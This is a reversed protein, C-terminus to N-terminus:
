LSWSERAVWAHKACQHVTGELIDTETLLEHGVAALGVSFTIVWEDSGNQQKARWTWFNHGDRGIGLAIMGIRGVMADGSDRQWFVINEGTVLEDDKWVEEYPAAVGTSPNVMTGRELSLTHIDPHLPHPCIILGEDVSPNLSRSDIIHTWKAQVGEPSDTASRTGFFAWDIETTPSPHILIRQDLFFNRGTLVLTDTNESPKFDPGWALSIRRSISMTLTQSLRSFDFIKIMHDVRIYKKVEITRSAADAWAATKVKCDGRNEIVV